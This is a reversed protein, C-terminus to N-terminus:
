RGAEVRETSTYELLFDELEDFFKHQVERPVPSTLYSVGVYLITDVALPVVIPHMGMLLFKYFFSGAILWLVGAVLGSIAGQKTGRRWLIGGILPPLWLAFGPSAVNSLLLGLETPRAMALAFSGVAAIIMGLRSWLILRRDDV